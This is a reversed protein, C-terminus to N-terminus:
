RSREAIRVVARAASQQRLKTAIAEDGTAKHASIEALSSRAEALDIKEAPLARQTIVTVTGHGVEAFGGEVFVRQVGGQGEAKTIRVEGSGLRGILPTHGPAVGLQGDELPLIVGRSAVDLITSEPTVIVCRLGSTRHSQAM